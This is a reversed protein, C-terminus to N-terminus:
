PTRSDSSKLKFGLTTLHPLFCDDHHCRHCPCQVRYGQVERSYNQSLADALRNLKLVPDSWSQPESPSPSHNFGSRLISRTSGRNSGLPWRQPFVLHFSISLSALTMLSTVSVTIGLLSGRCHCATFACVSM